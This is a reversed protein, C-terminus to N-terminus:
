KKYVFTAACWVALGKRAFWTDNTEFESFGHRALATLSAHHREMQRRMEENIATRRACLIKHTAERFRNLPDTSDTIGERSPMGISVGLRDRQYNLYHCYANTSGSDSELLRCLIRQKDVRSLSVPLPILLLDQLEHHTKVFCPSGHRKWYTYTAEMFKEPDSIQQLPLPLPDHASYKMCKRCLWNLYCFRTPTGIHRAYTPVKEQLLGSDKRFKYNKKQWVSKRYVIRKWVTSTQAMRALDCPDLCEFILEMACAPLILAEEACVHSIIDTM